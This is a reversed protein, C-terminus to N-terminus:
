RITIRGDERGELHGNELLNGLSFEEGNRTKGQIGLV